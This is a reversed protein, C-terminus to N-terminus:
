PSRPQSFCSLIQLSCPSIYNGTFHPDPGSVCHMEEPFSLGGVEKVIFVGSKHAKNQAWNGLSVLDICDQQTQRNRNGM